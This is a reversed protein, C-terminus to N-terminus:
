AGLIVAKLEEATAVICDPRASELEGEPAYGWAVGIVSVGAARSGEVDHVRDGVMVVRSRDPEGLRRLAEEIIDAKAILTGDMAAGAIAAFRDALEFHELIPVAYHEPKSTAVGLTCGASALDDLLERVGPMVENEYMGVSGFRERYAEVARLADHDSFGYRDRFSEVLPPGVFSLLDSPEAEIGFTSLAYSVCRTIGCASDTLTGDLDFLVTEYM